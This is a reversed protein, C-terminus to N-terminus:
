RVNINWTIQWTRRQKPDASLFAQESHCRALSSWPGPIPELACETRRCGDEDPYGGNNWWIGLTPFDGVPWTINLNLRDAFTIQARGQEVARLLLM